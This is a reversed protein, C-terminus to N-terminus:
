FPIDDKSEPPPFMKKHKNVQVVIESKSLAKKSYRKRIFAGLYPVFAEHITGYCSGVRHAAEIFEYDVTGEDHNECASVYDCIANRLSGIAISVEDGFLFEAELISETWRHYEDMTLLHGRDVHDIAAITSKYIHIRREYLELARADRSTKYQQYAIYVAIIAILPTLLAKSIEILTTIIM